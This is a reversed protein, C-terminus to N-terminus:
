KPGEPAVQELYRESAGDFDRSRINSRVYRISLMSNDCRETRVIAWQSDRRAVYDVCARLGDLDPSTPLELWHQPGLARPASEFIREGASAGM